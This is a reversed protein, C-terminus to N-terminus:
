PTVPRNYTSRNYNFKLDPAAILAIYFSFAFNGNPAQTYAFIARWDHLNRQLSIIHDAFQHREFDYSTTWQAAWKPTLNFAFNARLTASAPTIVPIAGAATQPLTDAVLARQQDLCQQYVISSYTAYQQCIATPDRVVFHGTPPRMRSATFSLSATWGGTTNIGTVYSGGNPGIVTPPQNLPGGPALMGAQNAATAEGAASSDPPTAGGFLRTLTAFPNNQRGLNISASIGTRFPKFRATDSLPDGQYLSYDVGLNFGPLLDSQATYHFTSTTIGSGHTKAAREFDYTIPSFNLSLLRITKGAGTTDGPVHVKAEITQNLGLTVSGQPLDGLYGARTTNLARLYADSVHGAPAYGVSISPTISHRIRTFPGFGPFFGYLTPAIGLSYQLKKSQTVFQGNSFQTRVMFPGSTANVISITPVINFKRQLLAPLNIGTSWDISTRYNRQYVRTGLPRGTNFDNITFGQPFDNEIDNVSISNQWTFGGFRLPTQFDITSVRDNGNVPVTDVGAGKTVYSYPVPLGADIHFSQKNSVSLQPSWLFWSGIGIPKAAVSINPFDQDVEKRGSYQNRTGGISINASGLRQQLNVSSAIAALAQAATFAQQQIITTNSSYNVNANLSTSPTFQQTHNWNIGLSTAGNSFKSYSAAIGGSLFRSLWRYRWEGNLKTWGYDGALQGGNASRWDFTVTADMYDSLAFYYGLNNITRRYSRNTRVIDSVGIQPPIIGSRRGRRMDQFIFPLWLVPVDGIYLVAPRAVLLRKSVLKIEQAQFHYDPVPLNCSTITGDRVYSVSTKNGTTDGVVAAQAGGVYWRQGGQASSTSLRTVTGRRQAINYTMHGIAVLDASGQAPDRLIITDGPPAAARVNRTVDNYRITDGVLIMQQRQVAAKGSLRLEHHTADFTADAGRYRTPTYGPTALLRSLLTDSTPWVVLTRATDAHVSDARVAARVAVTDSPLPVVSPVTGPQQAYLAAPCLAALVLLVPGM